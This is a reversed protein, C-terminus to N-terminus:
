MLPILVEPPHSYESLKHLSVRADELPDPEKSSNFISGSYSEGLIVGQALSKSQSLTPMAQNIVYSKFNNEKEEQGHNTPPYKKLGTEQADADLELDKKSLRRGLEKSFERLKDRSQVRNMSSKEKLPPPSLTIDAEELDQYSELKSKLV